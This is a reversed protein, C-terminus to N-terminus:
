CGFRFEPHDDGLYGVEEKPLLLREDKLGRRRKENEVKLGVIFGVMLLAAMVMLGFSVAFGNRYLPVETASFVLSTIVGGVNGLGIQLGSAFAMKYKGSVNNALIGWLLPLAICAGVEVFYLLM